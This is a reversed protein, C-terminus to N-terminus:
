SFRRERLFGELDYTGPIILKLDIEEAYQSLTDRRRICETYPHINSGYFFGMVDFQSERLVKVPYISCPGCCIHLLLKM